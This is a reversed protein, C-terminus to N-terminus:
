PRSERRRRLVIRDLEDETVGAQRMDTTTAALEAQWVKQELHDLEQRLKLLQAPKLKAAAAVIDKVTKM